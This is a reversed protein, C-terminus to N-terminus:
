LKPENAAKVAAILDKKNLGDPNVHKTVAVARLASLDLSELPPDGPIDQEAETAAKEGKSVEEWGEGKPNDTVFIEDPKYYVGGIYVPHPAKYAKQTAM